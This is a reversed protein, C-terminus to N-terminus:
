HSVLIGPLWRFLAVGCILLVNFIFGSILKKFFFLSARGNASARM